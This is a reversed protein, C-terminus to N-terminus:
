TGSGMAKAAQRAILTFGRARADKELATLQTRAAASDGSKIEIEGLALRIEFETQVLGHQTAEALGAELNKRAEAVDNRDGSAARLSETFISWQQGLRANQGVAPRRASAAAASVQQAEAIKGEFLLARALVMGATYKLAPKSTVSPDQMVQRATAEAKGPQGEVLALQALSLEATGEDGRQGLGAWIAEAQAYKSSAQALNGQAELVNGLFILMHAASSRDDLERAIEVAEECSKRGQALDGEAQWVTEVPIEIKSIRSV